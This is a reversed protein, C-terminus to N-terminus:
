PFMQVEREIAVDTMAHVRTEIGRAFADIERASAGESAVLVLPQRAFLSVNGEQYGRLGLAKDLIFALPIKVGESNPFGPLGEYRQVLVKYAEESVTPNKFFSGATGHTRLDPFKQARIARVVAGISAPTALDEGREKAAALDKYGLSPTGDAALRFTVSLIILDRERKFRSDRYGFACDESPIDRVAGTSADLARVTRITDKVETGYAGINQVPAAGVSGPIGALNEIGWLGRAACAGVFADWNLGAGATCLHEGGDEEIAFGRMSLRLVVGPFGDDSALVNSGEGLVRWPLEKGRAFALAERVDDEDACDAVYRAVGGVRLTSLTSLPIDERLIM